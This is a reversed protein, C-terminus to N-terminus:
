SSAALTAPTAIPLWTICVMVPMMRPRVVPVVMMMAIAVPALSPLRAAEAMPVDTHSKASVPSVSVATM